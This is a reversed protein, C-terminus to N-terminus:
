RAGEFKTPQIGRRRGSRKYRILSSSRRKCESRVKEGYASRDGGMWGTAGTALSKSFHKHDAEQLEEGHRDVLHEVEKTLTLPEEERRGRRREAPELEHRRGQQRPAYDVQNCLRPYDHVDVQLGLAEAMMGLAELQRTFERSAEQWINDKIKGKIAGKLRGLTEQLSEQMSRVETGAKTKRKDWIWQIWTMRENIGGATNISLAEATFKSRHINFARALQPCHADSWGEEEEERWEEGEMELLQVELSGFM